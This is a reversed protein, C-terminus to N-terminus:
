SEDLMISRLSDIDEQPVGCVQTLYNEITERLTKGSYNEEMMRHMKDWAVYNESNDQMVGSSDFTEANLIESRWRRGSQSFSTLEYDRTLDEYSIGLVGNILYAITGTRDAGANCHLYVPYNDPDALIHFIERISDTSARSYFRVVPSGQRFGPIISCYGEMPLKYYAADEGLISVTQGYDDKGPTRLDIETQIGLVDRFLAADKEPFNNDEGTNTIGGRYIMEYKVKKGDETKWGGLDRVNPVSSTTIFRVPADRLTFSDEQLLAGTEANEVKWYYTKGPIFTGNPTVAAVPTEYIDAEQYDPNDAFSVRFRKCDSSDWQFSLAQFALNTGSQAYLIAAQGTGTKAELYERVIPDCLDTTAKSECGAMSFVTMMILVFAALRRKM